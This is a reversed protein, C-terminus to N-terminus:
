DRFRIKIKLRKDIITIPGNRNPIAEIQCNWPGGIHIAQTKNTAFMNTKPKVVQFTKRFRRSKM